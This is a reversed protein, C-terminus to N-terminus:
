KAATGVLWSKAMSMHNQQQCTHSTVSAAYKSFHAHDKKEGKSFEAHKHTYESQLQNTKGQPSLVTAGGLVM